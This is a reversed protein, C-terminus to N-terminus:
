CLLFQEVGGKAGRSNHVARYKEMKESLVYDTFSTLISAQKELSRLKDKCFRTNILFGELAAISMNWPMVNAMALRMVRLAVVFEGVEAFDVLEDEDQKSKCSAARATCNNINFMRVSLKPSSPNAIQCWGRATVFGALGVTQMDYTSIPPHGNLGIHERATLWLKTASCGAGALFRADHIRTWRDDHGAKVETCHLGLKIRNSAV